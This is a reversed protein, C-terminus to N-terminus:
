YEPKASTVRKGEDVRVLCTALGLSSPHEFLVGGTALTTMSYRASEAKAQVDSLPTGPAIGACFAKASRSAMTAPAFTLLTVGGLAVVTVIASWRRSKKTDVGGLGYNKPRAAGTLAPAGDPWRRDRKLVRRLEDLEAGSMADLAALRETSMPVGFVECLDLVGLRLAARQGDGGSETHLVDIAAVSADRVPPDSSAGTSM